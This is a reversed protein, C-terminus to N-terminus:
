CNRAHQNSWGCTTASHKCIVLFSWQLRQLLSQHTTGRRHRSNLLVGHPICGFILHYYCWKVSDISCRVYISRNLRRTVDKRCYLENQTLPALKWFIVVPLREYSGPGDSEPNVESQIFQTSGMTTRDCFWYSCCSLQVRYIQAARDKLGDGM